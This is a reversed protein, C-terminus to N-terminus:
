LFELNSFFLILISLFLASFLIRAEDDSDISLRWEIAVVVTLFFILIIMLAVFCLWVMSDFPLIFVNDTYSLNPMRFFFFSETRIPAVIYEFRSVWQQDFAIGTATIDLDSQALKQYLGPTWNGNNENYEGLQDITSFDFSINAYQMLDRILCLHAKEYTDIKKFSFFYIFINFFM